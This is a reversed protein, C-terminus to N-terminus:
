SSPMGRLLDIERSLRKLRTGDVPHSLLLAPPVKSKTGSDENAASTDSWISLAMWFHVAQEAEYGARTMYRVAFKDASIAHERSFPVFRDGFGAIGFLGRVAEAHTRGTQSVRAQTLGIKALPSQTYREGYHNYNVHALAGALVAALQDDNAVRNLLGSHIGIKQNPLAFANVTQSDFVAVEWDSPENRSARIIKSSVRVVRDLDADDTTLTERKLIDRWVPTALQAMQRSSVFLLESPGLQESSSCGSAIAAVVAASGSFLFGRRTRSGPKWYRSLDPTGIKQKIIEVV